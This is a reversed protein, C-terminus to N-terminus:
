PEIWPHPHDKPVNVNSFCNDEDMAMSRIKTAIRMTSRVMMWNYTHRIDAFM